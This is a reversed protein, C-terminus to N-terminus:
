VEIRPYRKEAYKLLLTRSLGALAALCAGLAVILGEGQLGAKGMLRVLLYMGFLAGLEAFLGFLVNLNQKIAKQPNTWNLLPRALDIMMGIATLTLSALFALALGALLTLLNVRFKFLVVLGAAVVGLMAVGLSHWLKGRVQESPSIPIVKSLWFQAGERSFTSSATGNITGCITMFLALGLVAATPNLSSLMGLLRASDMNGAGTTWMLLFVIPILVVSLVGNLLFIPTRNMIRVERWFMAAVPRRGSSLGRAMRDRSLKKRRSTTEGIGILGEYFLKKSLVLLGALLGVSVAIFLAANAPGPATFGHAVAKTAWVSPPFKAGIQQVLGDPSAFFKVFAQPDPQAGASRNLMFQIGIGLTMLILSGAIILVDKKRSFNAVRMLGVVLLSVLALPIVPLLLYAAAASLWYGPGAKSLLGVQIFIPLSLPAVTLYENVLIVTFKSLMVQAPRLPLPVLIELDRSFYFASIVYYFGFVLVLFQGSLIGFTLLAQTQGLPELWRYISRVLRFYLVFLPIVGGAGLVVLPIIWWDRKKTKLHSPRLLSLGFNVRLSVRILVWLKKM